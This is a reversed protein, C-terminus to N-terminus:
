CLCLCEVISMHLTADDYSVYFDYLITSYSFWRHSRAPPCLRRASSGSYGAFWVSRLMILVCRRRRRRM